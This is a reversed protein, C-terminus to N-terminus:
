QFYFSTPTALWSPRFYTTKTTTSSSQCIVYRAILDLYSLIYKTQSHNIIMELNIILLWLQILHCLSAVVVLTHLYLNHM